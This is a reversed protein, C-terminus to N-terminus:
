LDLEVNAEPLDRCTEAPKGRAGQQITSFSRAFNAIDNLGIFGSTRLLRFKSCCAATLSTLTFPIPIRYGVRSRPPM